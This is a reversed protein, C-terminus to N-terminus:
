TGQQLALRSIKTTSIKHDYSRLVFCTRGAHFLLHPASSTWRDLPQAWDTVWWQRQQLQRGDGLATCAPSVISFVCNSLRSSFYLYEKLSWLILPSLSDSPVSLWFSPSFTPSSLNISLLPFLVLAAWLLAVWPLPLSFIFLGFFFLFLWEFIKIILWSRWNYLPSLCLSPSLSCRDGGHFHRSVEAEKTLERWWPQM